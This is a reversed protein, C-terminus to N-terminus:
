RLKIIAAVIGALVVIAGVLKAILETFKNNSGPIISPIKPKHTQQCVEFRTTIDERISSIKESVFEKTALHKLEATFQGSLSAISNNTEDLKEFIRDLDKM